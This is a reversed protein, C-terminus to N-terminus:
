GRRDCRRRSSASASSTIRASTDPRFYLVRQEIYGRPQGRVEDITPSIAPLSPLGDALILLATDVSDNYPYVRAGIRDGLERDRRVRDQNTEWAALSQFQRLQWVACQSDSGIWTEWAGILASGHAELGKMAQHQFAEHREVLREKRAIM